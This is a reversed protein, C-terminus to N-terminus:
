STEKTAHNFFDAVEPVAAAIIEACRQAIERHEKQTSPDTRVECYHMWSRLSGKVYMTSLTMGEPLVVRAVEKAIGNDIAWQYADRSNEYVKRQRQEWEAILTEDDCPLSNQRNKTDQMRAERTICVDPMQAYRGSFEQFRFSIHRLVQRAIDRPATIELLVDAMDFPSWHRQRTLYRLLNPATEHNLQNDKNSVRACYAVLEGTTEMGDVVPKTLAILRVNKM